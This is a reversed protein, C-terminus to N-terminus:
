SSHQLLSKLRAVELKLSENEQMLSECKDELQSMREMKRARSRRAAETNKARKIAAADAGEPVVPELPLSRKKRTYPTCGFRDKKPSFSTESTCSVSRRSEEMDTLPSTVLAKPLTEEKVAPTPQVAIQILDDEEKFLPEWSSSDERSELMPAAQADPDEFISDIVSSHIEFPSITLGTSSRLSHDADHDDFHFGRTDLLLEELDAQKASPPEAFASFVSEGLLM